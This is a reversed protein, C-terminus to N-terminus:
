SCKPKVKKLHKAIARDTNTDTTIFSGSKLRNKGKVSILVTSDSVCTEYELNLTDFTCAVNFVGEVLEALLQTMSIGSKASLFRIQEATVSRVRIPSQKNKQAM